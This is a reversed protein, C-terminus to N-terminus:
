NTSSAFDPFLDSSGSLLYCVVRMLSLIGALM